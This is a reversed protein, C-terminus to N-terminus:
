KPLLIKDLDVSKQILEIARKIKWPTRRNIKVEIRSIKITVGYTDFHTRITPIKFKDIYALTKDPIEGEGTVVIGALPSHEIDVLSSFSIVKDMARGVNRASSLLLQNQFTKLEKLDVLSGALINEVKNDLQDEHAIVNGKITDAITKVLPFALSEDYPIVGLLPIDLPKLWKGVYHAVKELKDIRVKNVIVGIIPVNEERFLAMCLNLMDITSGIGGEVVMVVGADLMKAIKANSVHGVSGVGPHGTGEYITLENNKEFHRKAHEIKPYFLETDPNDLFQETAGRNFIVPSHLEPNLKFKIMDAFLVTDKDVIMNQFTLYRQGVPKCYGVDLGRELYSAVLGLTTTTKGVHQRSAAVFINKYKKM